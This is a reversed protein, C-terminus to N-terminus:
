SPKDTNTEVDKLTQIEQIIQFVEIFPKTGLYSLIKNLLEISIKKDKM